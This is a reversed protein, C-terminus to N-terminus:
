ALGTSGAGSHNGCADRDWELSTILPDIILPYTAGADDVVIEFGQGAFAPAMTAALEIDAADWVKLQSYSLVPVEV